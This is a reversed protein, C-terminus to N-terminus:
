GQCIPIKSAFRFHHHSDSSQELSVQSKCLSVRVKLLGAEVTNKLFLSSWPSTIVPYHSCWRDVRWTGLQPLFARCRWVPQRSEKDQNGAWRGLGLVTAVCFNTVVLAPILREWPLLVACLRRVLWQEAGEQSVRHRRAPESHAGCVSVSLLVWVEAVPQKLSTILRGSSAFSLVKLLMLQCQKRQKLLLCGTQAVTSGLLPLHCAGMRGAVLHWIWPMSSADTLHSSWPLHGARNM